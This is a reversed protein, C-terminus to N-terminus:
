ALWEMTVKATAGAIMHVSAVGKVSFARAAGAPVYISGTGDSVDASPVAATADPRIYLDIDSIIILVKKNNPVPHTEEVNAALARHDVYAALPYFETIPAIGDTAM